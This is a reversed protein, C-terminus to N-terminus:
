PKISALYGRFDCPVRHIHLLSRVRALSPAVDGAQITNNFWSLSLPDPVACSGLAGPTVQWVLLVVASQMGGSSLSGRAATLM